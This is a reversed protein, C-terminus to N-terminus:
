KEDGMKLASIFASQPIEMNGYQRMKLKGKKQKDLLQAEPDRRRSLMKATVDDNELKRM